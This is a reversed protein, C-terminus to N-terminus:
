QSDLEHSTETFRAVLYSSKKLIGELAPAIDSQM